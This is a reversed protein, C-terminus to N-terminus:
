AFGKPGGGPVVISIPHSGECALNITLPLGMHDALGAWGSAHYACCYIDQGPWHVLFFAEEECKAARCRKVEAM